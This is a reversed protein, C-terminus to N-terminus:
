ATPRWWTREAKKSKKWEEQIEAHLTNYDHQSILKLQRQRVLYAYPSVRLAAAQKKLSDFHTVPDSLLHSPMLVAGAFHDCWKKEELHEEWSDVASEKRILHGLEHFLTFSQAKKCRFWKCHNDAAYWSINCPGSLPESKHPVMWSIKCDPFCLYGKKSCSRGNMFFCAPLLLSLELILALMIVLILCEAGTEWKPLLIKLIKRYSQLEQDYWNQNVCRVNIM